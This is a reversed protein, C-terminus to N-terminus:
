ALNSFPTKVTVSGLFSAPTFFDLLIFISYFIFFFYKAHQTLLTRVWCKKEFCLITKKFHYKKPFLIRDHDFFSRVQFLLLIHVPTSMFKTMM